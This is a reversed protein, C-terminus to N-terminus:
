SSPPLLRAAIFMWAAATCCNCCAASENYILHEASSEVPQLPTPEPEANLLKMARGSVSNDGVAVVIMRLNGNRCESGSILLPEERNKKLLDSEGTMAGEFCEVSDGELLLGDAPIKNGAEILVIDGVLLDDIMVEQKTANRLM